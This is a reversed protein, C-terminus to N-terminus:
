SLLHSFYYYSCMILEDSNRCSSKLVNDSNKAFTEHNKKVIQIKNTSHRSM